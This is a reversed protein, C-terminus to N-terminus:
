QCVATTNATATAISKALDECTAVSLGGQGCSVARVNEALRLAAIATGCAADAKKSKCGSLSLSLGLLYLGLGILVVGFGLPLPRKM